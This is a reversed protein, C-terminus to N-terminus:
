ATRRLVDRARMNLMEDLLVLQALRRPSDDDNLDEPSVWSTLLMLDHPLPHTQTTVANLVRLAVLSKERPM